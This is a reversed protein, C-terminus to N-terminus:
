EISQIVYM